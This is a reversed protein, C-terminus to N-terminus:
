LDGSALVQGQPLPPAEDGHEHSVMFRTVDSVGAQMRMGTHVDVGEQTVDFAGVPRVDGYRSQGWLVYSTGDENVPLGDVVLSLESGRVLAVAVVDGGSETAALPVTDTAADQLEGVAATMRDGWADQADRDSRLAANWAGLGIVLAAAAAVGLWTGARRLRAADRRRRLEDVPAPAPEAATVLWATDAPSAPDSPFSAGRGSARVGARIGELLSAPPEVDPAAYALHALSERHAVVARECRACGRVHTLFVQEDEPELAGLAHGAALEEFREHQDRGSM